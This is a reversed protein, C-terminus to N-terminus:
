YLYRFGKARKMAEESTIGELAAAELIADRRKTLADEDEGHDLRRNLSILHQRLFLCM